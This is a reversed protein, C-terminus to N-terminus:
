AGGLARTNQTIVNGLEQGILKIDNDNRVNFVAGRFMDAFSYTNAGISGSGGTSLDTSPTSVGQLATQAAAAMNNAGDKISQITSDLGLAFGEGTFKGLEEMVHSPSRIDLANKIGDKVSNAIDNVKESVANAMSSIGNILGQIIDKGVQVLDINKFFTVINDMINQATQKIAEWAGKWDGQLLKSFVDFIGRIIDLTNSIILKVAEISTKITAKILTWAVSVITKIAEFQVKFYGGITKLFVDVFVMIAEGHEEWFAQLESFTDEFFTKLDEIIPKVFAVIEEWAQVFIDKIEAWIENVFNRFEENKNYLVVLGAVLGAIAAVAIGIPGTIAALAGGFVASAGGAATIAGSVATFISIMSSIGTAIQGIIVLAPGIAAAVGAITLILQQTGQDLTNFWNLLDSIKETIATIIPLITQGLQALAQQMNYSANANDIMEKNNERYQANVESLGLKALQDLVFQQQTGNKISEQLGKNFNDLSVGSRELLEAFPGIAAGTALTEQLGDAVGEFKLTDSFKIAAGTLQDLVQEFQDGKFGSALLNSLGEVSSDVEGTIAVTDRLAANMQDMSAGAAQANVELRSFFKRFEETGETALAAIGVLPATIGVSMKEGAGKLGEGARKIKNAASEASKGLRKFDPEVDKLKNGLGSLEQQTKVIERQFARYQAESIEGNEFQRNVQEQVNKLRDLKQTTNEIANGLLKQKQAILETNTPDLKLLQEVKRLESQIDRSRKNVDSLASSLGTTEAGIVVNIGKITEAM